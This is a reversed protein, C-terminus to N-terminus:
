DIKQFLVKTIHHDIQQPSCHAAYYFAKTVELCTQKLIPDTDKLTNNSLVLKVLEQMEEDIKKSERDSQENINGNM